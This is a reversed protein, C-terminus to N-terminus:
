LGPLLLRAIEGLAAPREGFLVLDFCPRLARVDPSLALVSGPSVLVALRTEVLAVGATGEILVLDHPPLARLAEALASRMADASARVHELVQESGERGRVTTVLRAVRAGSAALAAALGEAASRSGPRDVVAIVPRAHQIPHDTRTLVAREALLSPKDTM